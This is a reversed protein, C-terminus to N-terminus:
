SEVPLTAAEQPSEVVLTTDVSEAPAPLHEPMDKQCHTTLIFSVKICGQRAEAAAADEELM